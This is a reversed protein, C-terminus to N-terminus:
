LREGFTIGELAERARAMAKERLSLPPDGKQVEVYGGWEYPNSYEREPWCSLLIELEVYADVLLAEVASRATERRECFASYERWFDAHPRGEQLIADRDPACLDIERRKSPCEQRLLRTLTRSSAGCLRCRYSVSDGALEPQFDPTLGEPGLGVVEISHRM